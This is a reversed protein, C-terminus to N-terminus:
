GLPIAHMDLAHDPLLHGYCYQAFLPILGFHPEDSELYVVISLVQGARREFGHLTQNLLDIHETTTSTTFAWAM